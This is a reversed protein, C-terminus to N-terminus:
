SAKRIKIFCWLDDSDLLAIFRGTAAEIAKNRAVAAGSNKDLQILQIRHDKELFEQAILVLNDSSYDDVM